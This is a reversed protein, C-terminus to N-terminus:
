NLMKELKIKLDYRIPKEYKYLIYSVFIILTSTFISAFNFRGFEAFYEIVLSGIKNHLLYIPYTMGGITVAINVITRNKIRNSILVALTAIVFILIIIITGNTDFIGFNNSPTSHIQLKYNIYHPLLFTVLLIILNKLKFFKDTTVSKSNKYDEILIALTGGFVFYPSYRVLALKSIFFEQLNFTFVIITLLTWMYYFWSINKKKFLLVFMGIYIYFMIEITLTWYSGDIMNAVKGNNIILLNFLYKYFPLSIIQHDLYKFVITTIYTITCAVWFMPYLRVFRGIFYKKINESISFYIVFGSVIFFLEVGLYGYKIWINFLNGGNLYTSFYHFFMVSIAAFFRLVDILPFYTKENEVESM